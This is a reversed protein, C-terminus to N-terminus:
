EEEEVETPELAAAASLYRRYAELSVDPIGLLTAERWREYAEYDIDM